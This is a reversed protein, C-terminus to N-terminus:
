AVLSFNNVEFLLLGKKTVGKENGVFKALCDSTVSIDVITDVIIPSKDDIISIAVNVNDILVICGTADSGDCVIVIFQLVNFTLLELVINLESENWTDFLEYKSLILV